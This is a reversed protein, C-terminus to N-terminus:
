EKDMNKFYLFVGENENIELRNIGINKGIKSMQQCILDVMEEFWKPANQKHRIGLMFGKVDDPENIYSINNSFAGLTVFVMRAVMTCRLPNYKSCYSNDLVRALDLKSCAESLWGNESWRALLEENDLDDENVWRTSYLKM